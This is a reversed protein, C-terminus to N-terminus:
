SESSLKNFCDSLGQHLSWVPKWGLKKLLDSNITSSNIQGIRDKVYAVKSRRGVISSIIAVLENVSYPVNDSVNIIKPCENNDAVIRIGLAIDDVHTYCRTQEGDGHIEIDEGAITKELFISTALSKRMKPGYFTALRLLRYDCGSQEIVKEGMLKTRAYLETPVLPSLENSVAVGNNGYACCTSAYLLRVNNDFCAKAINKTGEVNISFCVDPSLEAEYLDSVAALHICIDCGKIATTIQDFNLVDQGDSIDFTRLDYGALTFEDCVRAGLFGSSGTILVTKM